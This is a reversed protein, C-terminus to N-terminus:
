RGGYTPSRRGRPPEPDPPLRARTSRSSRPGARASRPSPRARDIAARRPSRKRPQTFSPRRARKRLAMLGPMRFHGQSRVRRKRKIFQDALEAFGGPKQARRDLKRRIEVFELPSRLPPRAHFLNPRQARFERRAVRNWRYSRHEFILIDVNAAARCPSPLARAPRDRVSAQRSVASAAPFTPGHAPGATQLHPSARIQPGIQRQPAWRYSAACDCRPLLRRCRGRISAGRCVKWAAAM